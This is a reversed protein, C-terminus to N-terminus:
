ETGILWLRAKGEGGVVANNGSGYNKKTVSVTFLAFASERNYQTLDIKVLCRVDETSYSKGTYAFNHVTIGDIKISIDLEYPRRSGDWVETRGAAEFKIVLSKCELPLYVEQMFADWTVPEGNVARNGIWIDSPVPAALVSNRGGNAASLQSFTSYTSVQQDPSFQQWSKVGDSFWVRLKLGNNSLVSAAITGMNVISSDGLQVSFLGKNVSLSVATAPVDATTTGDNKWYFTTGDSSVFAFKFQGSGTFATGGSIVRGQYSLVTQSFASVGIWFQFIFVFFYINSKM